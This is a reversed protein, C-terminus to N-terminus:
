IVDRVYMISPDLHFESTDNIGHRNKAYILEADTASVEGNLIQEEEAHMYPRYVFAVFDAHAAVMGGGRLHSLRPRRDDVGEIAKTTHALVIVAVGLDKAINEKLFRAKAEDEDYANDFRRDADFYRLHDIVVLNVKYRRVAEVILARLQAARIMSTFNFYLPIDKRSGWEKIIRAMEDETASGDRLKAGDVMGESQGFRDGSPEEGMELSVIFAGLRKDADKKMQREAFKRTACFATASKGCGPEGGLIMLEGGKLGHIREDLFDLGFFVGLEIGAERAARLENQRQIFRRGLDGYSIIENSLLTSTAVQMARQSAEAAILEPAKDGRVESTIEAALDLLERRDYDRRVIKAHAVADGPIADAQLRRCFGVATDMDCNWATLLETGGREAITLPDTAGDTYYADTLRDFVIRLARSHFHDPQILTGIVEGTVKPRALMAGVVSREAEKSFPVNTAALGIDTM